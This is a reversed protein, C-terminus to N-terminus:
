GSVTIFQSAIPSTKFRIDGAPRNAIGCADFGEDILLSSGVFHSPSIGFRTNGSLCGATAM